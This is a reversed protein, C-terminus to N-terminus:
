SLIRLGEQRPASAGVPDFIQVYRRQVSVTEGPLVTAAPEGSWQRVLYTPLCSAAHLLLVLKCLKIAAPGLPGLAPCFGTKIKGAPFMCGGM